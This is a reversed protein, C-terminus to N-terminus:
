YVRRRPPYFFRHGKKPVKKSTSSPRDLFFHHVVSPHHKCESVSFIVVFIIYTTFEKADDNHRYWNVMDRLMRFLVM